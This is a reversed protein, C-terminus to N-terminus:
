RLTKVTEARNILWTGKVKKLSFKLEEVILDKDDDLKGKATLDTIASQGDPGLAINIDIFKVKFGGFNQRLAMAAQFLQDHGSLTQQWGAADFEIRVDSTFFGALKESNLLKAAPAENPAFSALQTLETLQKRIAEEPSPFWTQWCWFGFAALGVALVVRLMWRKM